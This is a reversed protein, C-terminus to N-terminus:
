KQDKIANFNYLVITDNCIGQPLLFKRRLLNAIAIYNPANRNVKRKRFFIQNQM